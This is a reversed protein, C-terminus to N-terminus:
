LQFSAFGHYYLALDRYRGQTQKGALLPVVAARAEKPKRLRLLMEALDCRAHAIWELDTKAEKSRESFAQAAEAYHRSAEDFRQNATNRHAPAENPKAVALDLARLGQARRALGLYYLAFPRDAFTKLGIVQQLQEAAQDYNRQAGQVLCLAL